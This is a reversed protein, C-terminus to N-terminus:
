DNKKDEMNKFSFNSGPAPATRTGESPVQEATTEDMDMSKVFFYLDCFFVITAPVMGILIRTAFDLKLHPYAYTVGSFGFFFTGVVTILVNILSTELRRSSRMQRGFDEMLETRGYKQAPDVDRILRKYADQEQQVRLEETRKRFAASAKYTHDEHRLTLRDFFVFVPMDAPLKEKINVLDKYTVCDKQQFEKIAKASGSAIEDKSAAILDRFLDKDAKSVNWEAM